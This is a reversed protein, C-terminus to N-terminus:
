LRDLPQGAVRRQGGLRGHLDPLLGRLQVLIQALRERFHPLVILLRSPSRPARLRDTTVTAAAETRAKPGAAKPASRSPLNGVLDPACPVVCARASARARLSPELSSRHSADISSTR